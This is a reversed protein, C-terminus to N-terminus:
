NRMKLFVAAAPALRNIDLTHQLCRERPEHTAAAAHQKNTLPRTNIHLKALWLATNTKHVAEPHLYFYYGLVRQADTNKAAFIFKRL